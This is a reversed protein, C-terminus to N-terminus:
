KRIIMESGIKDWDENTWALIDKSLNKTGKKLNYKTKLDNRLKTIRAIEANYGDVTL